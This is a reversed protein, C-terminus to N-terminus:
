DDKELSCQTETSWKLVRYMFTNMLNLNKMDLENDKLPNMLSVSNTSAFRLSGEKKLIVSMQFSRPSIVMGFVVDQFFLKSLMQQVNPFIGQTEQRAPKLEVVLPFVGPFSKLAACFDPVATGKKINSCSGESAVSSEDSYSNTSLRGHLSMHNFTGVTTSSHPANYQMQTIHEDVDEYILEVEPICCISPPCCLVESVKVDDIIHLLNDILHTMWLKGLGNKMDGKLAAGFSAVYRGQDVSAKNIEEELEEEYLSPTTTWQDVKGFCEYHYKSIEILKLIGNWDDSEINSHEFTEINLSLFRNFHDITMPPTAPGLWPYGPGENSKEDCTIFKVRLIKPISINHKKEEGPILIRACLARQNYSSIWGFPFRNQM